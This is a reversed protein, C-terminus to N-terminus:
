SDTQSDINPHPSLVSWDLLRTILTGTLISVAVATAAVTLRVGVSAPLLGLDVAGVADILAPSVYLQSLVYTPVTLVWLLGTSQRTRTYDTDKIPVEPLDSHPWDKLYFQSLLSVSVVAGLIFGLPMTFLGLFVAYADVVSSETYRSLAAALSPTILFSGAFVIHFLVVYKYADALGRTVLRSVKTKVREGTPM